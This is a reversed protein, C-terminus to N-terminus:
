GNKNLGQRKGLAYHPKFRLASGVQATANCLANCCVCACVCVRVCVCKYAEWTFSPSTIRARLDEPTCELPKEKTRLTSSTDPVFRVSVAGQPAPPLLMPSTRTKQTRALDYIRCSKTVRGRIPRQLCSCQCPTHRTHEQVIEIGIGSLYQPLLMPVTCTMRTGALEYIRSPNDGQGQHPAPPM